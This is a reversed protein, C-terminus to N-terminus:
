VTRSEFEWVDQGACDRTWPSSLSLALANDILQIFILM